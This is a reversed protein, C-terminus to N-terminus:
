YLLVMFTATSGALVKKPSIPLFTGVPVATFVTTVGDRDVVSVNGAGGVYLGLAGAPVDSTGPTVALFKEALGSLGHRSLAM